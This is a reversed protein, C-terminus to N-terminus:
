DGLYQTVWTYIAAGRTSGALWENGHWTFSTCAEGNPASGIRENEERADRDEPPYDLASSEKSGEALQEVDQIEEPFFEIRHLM